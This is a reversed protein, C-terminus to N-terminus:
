SLYDSLLEATGPAEVANKGFGRVAGADVAAQQHEEYNTILMVPVKPFDRLVDTIVQMGSSGDIDLIRNVMVLDYNQSTLMPMADAGTHAADVEADFNSRIMREIAGHDPGCNGIDLVRKTM